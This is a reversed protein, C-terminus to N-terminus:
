YRSRGENRSKREFGGNREARSGREVSENDSYGEMYRCPRSERYRPRENDYTKSSFCRRSDESADADEDRNYHQKGKTRSEDDGDTRGSSGKGGMGGKYNYSQNRKIGMSLGTSTRGGGSRHSLMNKDQADIDSEDQEARYSMCTTTVDFDVHKHGKGSVPRAGKREFDDASTASGQEKERRPSSFAKKNQWVLDSLSCKNSTNQKTIPVSKDGCDFIDDFIVSHEDADSDDRLGVGGINKEDEEYLTPKQVEQQELAALLRRPVDILRQKSSGESTATQRNKDLIPMEKRKKSALVSKENAEEGSVSVKADTRNESLLNSKQMVSGVDSVNKEPRQFSCEVCNSKGQRNMRLCRPCKWKDSRSLLEVDCSSSSGEVCGEVGIKAEVNQRKEMCLKQLVSGSDRVTEPYVINDHKHDLTMSIIEELLHLISLKVNDPAGDKKAVEAITYILRMVDSLKGNAISPKSFGIGCSDSKEEMEFCNRLRKGSAITRRDDNPSGHEALVRLHTESLSDLIYEYAQSFKALMRKVVLPDDITTPGAVEVLEKFFPLGKLHLLFSTWEPWPVASSSASLNNTESSNLVAEDHSPPSLYQVKSGPDTKLLKVDELLSAFLQKHGELQSSLSTLSRCHQEVMHELRNFRESLEESYSLEHIKERTINDKEITNSERSKHKEQAITDELIRSVSIEEAFRNAEVAVTAGVSGSFRAHQLGLVLARRCLQLHLPIQSVPRLGGSVWHAYHFSSTYAGKKSLSESHRSAPGGTASTPVFSKRLLRRLAAHANQM